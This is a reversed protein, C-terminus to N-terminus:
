REKHKYYRKLYSCIGRTQYLMDELMCVNKKLMIIRKDLFIGNDYYQQLEKKHRKIKTELRKITDEYSEILEEM